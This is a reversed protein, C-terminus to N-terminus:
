KILLKTYGLSKGGTTYISVIYIGSNLSSTNIYEVSSKEITRGLADKIELIFPEDSLTEVKVVEGQQVPNPYILIQEKKLVYMDEIRTGSNPYEGVKFDSLQITNGGSTNWATIEVKIYRYNPITQPTLKVESTNADTPIVADTIIEEFSDSGDNNGYISLKNARLLSSTNSLTRHRYIFFGVKMNKKMDITFSPIYDEPADIGGYSIGPKVFAFSTGMDDDIIYYPDSGGVTADEPGEISTTITWGTREYLKEYESSGYKMLKVANGVDTLSSYETFGNDTSPNTKNIYTIKNEKKGTPEENEDKIDVYLGNWQLQYYGDSLRAKFGFTENSTSASYFRDIPKDDVIDTNYVLQHGLKNVIYYATDNGTVPVFKWLHSPDEEDFGPTAELMQNLGKSQMYNGTRLPFQIYYWIDNVSNEITPSSTVPMKPLATGKLAVTKSVLGDEGVVSFTLNSKYEGADGPFFWIYVKGGENKWTENEDVYVYFNEKNDWDFTIKEGSVPFGFVSVEKQPIGENKNEVGYGFDIETKDVILDSVKQYEIFQFFSDDTNGWTPTEMILGYDWGSNGQHIYPSTPYDETNTVHIQYYGPTSSETIYWETSPISSVIAIDKNKDAWNWVDLVKDSYRNVIEYVGEEIKIFCWLRKYIDDLSSVEDKSVGIARTNGTTENDIAAIVRDHRVDNSGKVQIYYWPGDGNTSPQPLDSQAKLGYCLFLGFLFLTIKKM